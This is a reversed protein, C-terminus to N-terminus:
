FPPAEIKRSIQPGVDIILSTGQRTLNYSVSGNTDLVVRVVGAKPQGVRVRDVVESAVPIVKNGFRNQVGLIDIVIRSPDTLTFDQFRAEGDSEVSISFGGKASRTRVAQVASASKPTPSVRPKELQLKTKELQLKPSAIPKSASVPVDAQEQAIALEHPPTPKSKVSTAMLPLASQSPLPEMAVTNSTSKDNGVVRLDFKGLAELTQNPVTISLQKDSVVVPTKRLVVEGAKVFELALVKSFNVGDITIRVQNADTSVRTIEPAAMSPTQEAPASTENPEFGIVAIEDNKPTSRIGILTRTSNSLAFGRVENGLAKHSELEGTRTTFAFLAGSTSGIFALSADTNFVVSSVGSFQIGDPPDFEAKVTFQGKAYNLLTVGSPKGGPKGIRTVAILDNGTQDKTVTIRHPASKLRVVGLGKARQADIAFLYEGKCFATYVIEGDNSFAPNNSVDFRVGEHSFTRTSSLKGFQDLTVISLTNSQHSVVAVVAGSNPKKSEYMAIESPWGSLSISSLIKGTEVSFSYLEPEQFSSAICGFRGDTTLFARSAPTLHAVLPLEILAVREPYEANSADIINVAAPRRHDPDNATPLAILRRKKPEIMSIIGAVDGFSVDSLVKGTTVSFSVLAGTMVSSVFAVEGTSAILPTSSPDLVVDSPLSIIRPESLQKRDGAVHAIASSILLMSIISARVSPNLKM